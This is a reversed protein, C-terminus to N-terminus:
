PTGKGLEVRGTQFLASMWVLGLGRSDVDLRAAEPSTACFSLATGPAEDSSRNQSYSAGVTAALSLGYTSGRLRVVAAVYCAGPEPQFPMMTSGQVGLAADVLGAGELKIRYRRLVASFQARADADWAAPLGRELDWRTRVLRTLGRPLAGAYRVNVPVPRGTCFDVSADTGESRDAALVEGTQANSVELDLDVARISQHGAEDALLSLRHCGPPLALLQQGNGRVTATLEEATVELANEQAAHEEIAKLRLPLPAASPRPGSGAQPALPGPDRHPLVQTLAPLPLESTVLLVEILGRPSRLEVAVHDLIAKKAGCRSIVSAGALSTEPLEAQDAPLGYFDTVFNVTTPALIAVTVCGRATPDTADAPLLLPVVDGRELLRPPLRKVRGFASWALTLREIDGALDARASSAAVTLLLGLGLAARRM